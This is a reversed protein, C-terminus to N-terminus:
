TCEAKCIEDIAERVTKYGDKAARHLYIGGATMGCLRRSDDIVPEEHKASTFQVM